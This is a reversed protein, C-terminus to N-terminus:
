QNAIFPARFTPSDFDPAANLPSELLACFDNIHYLYAGLRSVLSLVNSSAENRQYYPRSHRPQLSEKRSEKPLLDRKAKQGGGSKERENM